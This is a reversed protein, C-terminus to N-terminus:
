IVKFNKRSRQFHSYVEKETRIPRRFNVPIKQHDMHLMEPVSASPNDIIVTM